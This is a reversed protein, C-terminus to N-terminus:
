VLRSPVSTVYITCIQILFPLIIVLSVINNSLRLRCYNLVFTSTCNVPAVNVTGYCLAM